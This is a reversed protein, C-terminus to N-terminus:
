GLALECNLLPVLIKKNNIMSSYYKTLKTEDQFSILLFLM